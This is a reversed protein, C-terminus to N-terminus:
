FQISKNSFVTLSVLLSEGQNPTIGFVIYTMYVILYFFLFHQGWVNSRHHITKFHVLFYLFHRLSVCLHSFCGLSYM